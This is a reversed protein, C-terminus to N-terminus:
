PPNPNARLRDRHCVGRGGAASSAAAPAAAAKRRADIVASNKSLVSDHVKELVWMNCRFFM